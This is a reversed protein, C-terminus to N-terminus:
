TLFCALTGVFRQWEELEDVKAETRLFDEVECSFGPKASVWHTYDNLTRRTPLSIGSERMVEYAKPSVRSLNLCWRIFLPHWRIGTPGKVKGAAVQVHEPFWYSCAIYIGTSCVQQEWFIRRFDSTPLSEMEMGSREIVQGIEEQVDSAVAVGEQSTLSELQKKIQAIKRDRKRLTERAKRLSTLKEPTKM